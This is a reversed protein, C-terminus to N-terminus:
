LWATVVQQKPMKWVLETFGVIRSDSPGAGFDCCNSNILWDIM